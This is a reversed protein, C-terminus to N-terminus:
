SLIDLLFKLGRLEGLSDAEKYAWNPTLYIKKSEREKRITDIKHEIAKILVEKLLTKEALQAKFLERQEEPCNNLLSSNPKSM